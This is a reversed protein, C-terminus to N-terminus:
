THACISYFTFQFNAALTRRRSLEPYLNLPNSHYGQDNLNLLGLQAQAQRHWFRYGCFLNVQWFDDRAHSHTIVSNMKRYWDM